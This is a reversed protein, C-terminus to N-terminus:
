TFEPASPMDGRRTIYALVPEHGTNRFSRRKGIPTTFTDGSGMVLAEDEVEIALEGDLVFLVEEEHRRHTPVVAGPALRLSRLVFEHKWPLVAEGLGEAESAPGLIPAEEVGDFAALASNATWPYDRSRAVIDKLAESGIKRHRAVQEPTTRPMPQKGAPIGQGQTTDVLSGDELLVLGYQHAMDFVDPAWLVRGPDDGGLIAYLFGTGEGVNEFGRFVDTPLSIVDGKELIIEGDDAHVGSRFAWTGSHVVFVELTLHSHQSNTCGPPQRAGGINFGHPIAIHVHQEPNESVGPGIITFNEKRDSGPTRTDIFANLCPSLDQYRVLRENLNM